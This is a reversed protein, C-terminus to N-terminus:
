SEVEGAPTGRFPLPVQAVKCVAEILLRMARADWDIQDIPANWYESMAYAVHRARVGLGAITCAPTGMIAQEIPCLRALIAEEQKTSAEHDAEAEIGLRVNRDVLSRQDPSIVLEGNTTQAAILEAVLSNFQVELTLLGADDDTPPLSIAAIEYPSSGVSANANNSFQSDCM